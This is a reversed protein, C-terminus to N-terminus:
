FIGTGDQTFTFKVLYDETKTVEEPVFIPKNKDLGKKTRSIPKTITPPAKKASKKSASM